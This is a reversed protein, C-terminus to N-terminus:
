IFKRTFKNYHDISNYENIIKCNDLILQQENEPIDKYIKKILEKLELKLTPSEMQILLPFISVLEWLGDLLTLIKNANLYESKEKISNQSNIDDNMDFTKLYNFVIIRNM